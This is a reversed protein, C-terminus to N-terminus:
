VRTENCYKISLQITPGKLHMRTDTVGSVDERTGGSTDAPTQRCHRPLSETWDCRPGSWRPCSPGHPSSPCLPWDHESERARESATCYLQHLNSLKVLKNRSACTVLHTGSWMAEWQKLQSQSNQIALLRWWQLHPGTQNRLFLLLDSLYWEM